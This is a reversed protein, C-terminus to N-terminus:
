RAENAEAVSAESVTSIPVHMICAHIYVTNYVVHMNYMYLVIIPYRDGIMTMKMMASASVLMSM